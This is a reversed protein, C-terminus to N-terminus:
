ASAQARYMRCPQTERASRVSKAGTGITAHHINRGIILRALRRECLPQLIIQIYALALNATLLGRVDGREMDPRIRSDELAEILTLEPHIKECLIQSPKIREQLRASPPGQGVGPPHGIDHLM